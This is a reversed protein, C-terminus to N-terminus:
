RDAGRSPAPARQIGRSVAASCASSHPSIVATQSGRRAEVRPSPRDRLLEGRSRRVRERDGLLQQVLGRAHIAEVGCRSRSSCSSVRAASPASTRRLAARREELLPWRSETHITPLYRWARICGRGPSTRDSPSAHRDFWARRPGVRAREFRGAAPTSGLQEPGRVVHIRTRVNQASAGSSMASPAPRRSSARAVPVPPATIHVLQPHPSGCTMGNSTWSRIRAPLSRAARACGRASGRDGRRDRDVQHSRGAGALGRHEFRGRSRM